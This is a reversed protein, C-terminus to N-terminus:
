TKIPRVGEKGKAFPEQANTTLFYDGKLNEPCDIGMVVEPDYNTLTRGRQFQYWSRAQVANFKEPYKNAVSEAWFRWSRRHSCLDTESLLEYNRQPCGPQLTIGGNPWFDVTGTHVPAGYIWSDTHIVDVFRADKASIRRFFIGPYFGPFAPDLATIRRLVTKKKSINTVSRGIVGVLQGGLSHGVLHFQEFNLGKAFLELLDSAIIPGLKYVNPLATSFYNGGGFATWNLTVINHNGRELYSTTILKISEDEQKEEYGHVYLTTTKQIDFNPDDLIYKLNNIGYTNTQNPSFYFIYNVSNLPGNQVTRCLVALGIFIKLILERM